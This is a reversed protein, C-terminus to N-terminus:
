REHILVLDREAAHRVYPRMSSLTGLDVRRGLREAMEDQMEVLEFLGKPADDAFEIAVDIDSDPRLAGRAASGFLWVRRVGHRGAWAALWSPDLLNRADDRGANATRSQDSALAHVDRRSVRYHGGPRIATLRGDRIYRKVTNISRIGLLAAAEGTTIWEHRKEM